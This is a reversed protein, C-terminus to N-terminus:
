FLYNLSLNYSRGEFFSNVDLGGQTTERKRNLLNKVNLQMTLHDNWYRTYNIDLEGYAEDMVDPAGQIGVERIMEGTLHYVLAAKQRFGDDYGLQLNFLYDAQGQLPRTSNTLIGADRPRIKVESDMLSLNASAYWNGLDEHIFDLWRFGDLEIGAVEAQEANIFSRRDAAGPEIVAEIPSDFDKAFLGISLSEDASFYWEWRFDYHKIYAATLAPNGVIEYGTLPHIFPAPSLERFDPRSITESYGLRFQMGHDDLIYTGTVVPFLDDSELKSVIPAANANFLDFTTVDQMSQEWRTGALLRFSRSLEMDAEVFWADLEQTATYNDTARTSERLEYGRPDITEPTLIEELRPQRRLETGSALSGQRVFSFRRIMSDRDKRVRSLGGSLTTFTNFPTALELAASLGLDENNDQLSQWNRENSDARLSFEYEGSRPDLDYRYQRTDPADQTARSRNYHWEVLLENLAGPYFYHQGEVQGSLLERELWELRTQRIEVDETALRGTAIGARDDMKRIQLATAKLSHGDPLELGTTLFASSDVSQETMEYVQDNFRSLAVGGDQGGPRSVSYSNRSVEITDWTNGYSLNGLGGLRVGNGFTWATGFNASLGTDPGIDRREATYIAPLSEGFAELEAPEFGNQFLANNKKLQRGGAIADRLAPPIDRTGDDVGLWDSGGGNYVLGDQLSTNGSYGLSTGIQFLPEDPVVKTRMQITGGAFEAPYKASFTKQVLVSEIISAPFLDLPVVKRIPEPSPLMAGNLMSSSYREGLGRIYVYKGGALNLGAIRKLGEAVNSDGAREFAASDLVNSISATARKEDPIYEGLTVIEEIQGGAPQRTPNEGGMVGDAPGQALLKPQHALMLATALLISKRKMPRHRRKITNM